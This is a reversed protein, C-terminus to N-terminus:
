RARAGTPHRPCLAPWAAASPLPCAAIAAGRHCAGALRSADRLEDTRRAPRRRPAPCKSTAGASFCPGNGTVILRRLDAARAAAARAFGDLLEPYVNRNDPRDFKNTGL